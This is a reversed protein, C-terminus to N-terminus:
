LVLKNFFKKLKEHLIYADDDNLRRMTTNILSLITDYAKNVKIIDENILRNDSLITKISLSKNEKIFLDLNHRTYKKDNATIASSKSNGEMVENDISKWTKRGKDSFKNYTMNKRIIYEM